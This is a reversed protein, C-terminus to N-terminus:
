FELEDEEMDDDDDDILKNECDKCDEPPKLSFNWACQGNKMYYICDIEIMRTGKVGNPKGFKAIM